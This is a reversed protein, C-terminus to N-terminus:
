RSQAENIVARLRRVISLRTKRINEPTDSFIAAIDDDGLGDVYKLKLLLREHETLTDFPWSCDLGAVWLDGLIAMSDWLAKGNKYIGKQVGDIYNYETVSDNRHPAMISTFPILNYRQSMYYALQRVYNRRFGYQVNSSTKAARLLSYVAEQWLDERDVHRLRSAIISAGREAAGSSPPLGYVMAFGVMIADNRNLAGSTAFRFYSVMLPHFRDLLKQAADTDGQRYLYVLTNIEEDVHGADDM